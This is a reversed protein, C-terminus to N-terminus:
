GLRPKTNEAFDGLAMKAFATRWGEALDLLNSLAKAAEATVNKTLRAQTVAYVSWDPNSREILTIEDGVEACGNELVRYYWGTRGTKQFRYAMKNHGTHANLKWCPQRGQSIQVRATGLQFVDGICVIEETLGFSSINEGFAAPVSGTPLLGERQWADYHDAAYHHIAKDVGGHVALDAQHDQVFGLKSIQQSGKVATKQIASPPRGEWRDAIQGTFLGSVSSPTLDTM